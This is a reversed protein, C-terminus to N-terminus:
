RSRIAIKTLDLSYPFRRDDHPKPPEVPGIGSGSEKFRGTVPTAGMTIPPPDDAPRQGTAGAIAPAGTTGYTWTLPPAPYYTCGGIARGTWTDILDFVLESTPWVTPHLTSPPQCAKYRVGAVYDGQVVGPNMPVSQQNCMLAYRDPPMGTVAVQIRENAIDIFRAMGGGTIEEALLPWPEHARRLELTIDGIQVSGLKPFNFEKLPAFWERQLPFGSEKLEDIIESLDDWLVEPLMFRDHLASQWDILPKTYSLHSFRAILSRVLLSQLDALRPHSPMDFSRLVIQGRRRSQREPAYLQDVRTEARHMNGSSDALLHRLLRDPMWPLSSDKPFRELAIGLEYLADDRGEDPRPATGSPGILTGSFFYSLSPHNQWYAILSRLIQPRTLFPSEAPTPGALTLSTYSNPRQRAEDRRGGHEYDLGVAKGETYAVDYLESQQQWSSAMPLFLRLLGNDPEIAFRKLRPDPPPEYGELVVPLGHIQAASEVAAVLGVYHEVYHIPPIFVHIVGDRVEVCIATRPARVNRKDDAVAPHQQADSIHSLEFQRASVEGHTEPLVPKEEFLSPEIAIDDPETADKSLSHLPLRFGMAFSGPLLYLHDRRFTWTGSTWQQKTFDWRLPLVYGAPESQPTSLQNALRQRGLPDSLDDAQPALPLTMPNAAFYEFPDEHAATVFQSHIGLNDALSQSFLRADTATAIRDPCRDGALLKGNRWLPQGDSRYCCSLRWRASAEGQIHEGQCLHVAAGPAWQTRLRDLLAYASRLKDPGMTQDTWEAAGANVASVFNVEASSCLKVQEERLAADVMRGAATIDRVHTESLPEDPTVPLLRRIRIENRESSVRTPDVGVVPVTRFPDPASALPIHNEATFVGMSPDLGIWGAGPVFVESWAHMSAMDDSEDERINGEEDLGLSILYGSTFRAALGLARLSQTLVWALDRPSGGGQRIVADLDIPKDDSLGKLTLNECVHDKMKTLFEVMYRPSRDLDILWDVFAPGCTTRHLYPTLEKRLQDPYEFPFDNAYPEVFFDFPNVPELDAIFESDFAIASFPEPLDLRGLHNEFPDRAWTLWPQAVHVKISYAELKAATHPAPRLRLWLTTPDMQRDFVYGVHQSLAVRTTMM